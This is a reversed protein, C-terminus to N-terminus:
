LGIPGNQASEYFMEKYQTAVKNHDTNSRIYSIAAESRSDFSSQNLSALEEIASTFASNNALTLAYGAGTAQLDQWPTQDSIIVPCGSFLSEVISHGFNENSTPLLLAHYKSIVSQVEEFSLQGKYTVAVNEPLRKILAECEHWYQEDELAGFIDYTIRLQPNVNQLYLLALHLNKVPSVRSLYFLRLTGPSKIRQTHIANSYNVNSIAYVKASPFVKKVDLVEQENTAHFHVTSMAKSWQLIKIVAKKKLPKISMAGKGLMGRPALLIPKNIANKMQVIQLAFPFSWFSNLYVLDVNLQKLLITMNDKNLRDHSFYYYGVEAKEFYANPPIDSYPENSGLDTNRTIITFRIENKLLQILSHISRVPGGANTGPLFWDTLIAVHLKNM